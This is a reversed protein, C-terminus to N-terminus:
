NWFEAPVVDLAFGAACHRKLFHKTEEDDCKKLAESVQGEAFLMADSHKLKNKTIDNVARALGRYVREPMLVSEAGEGFPKVVWTAHSKVVSSEPMVGFARYYASDNLEEILAERFISTMFLPKDSM